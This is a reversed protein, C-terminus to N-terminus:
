RFDMGRVIGSSGATDSGAYEVTVPMPQPQEGCVFDAPAHRMQVHKLDPIALTLLKGSAEITITTITECHIARLTGEVRHLEDGAEIFPNWDSQGHPTRTAVLQLSGSADRAFRVNLDTQAIHIQDAARKRQAASSAYEAAHRAASIAEDRRDIENFSDALALWYDFARKEPINRMAQFERIAAEYHRANKELLALQYHADDFGPRLAAARELAPRIDDAPLGAQDALIAYEYCLEADSIGLEIARKWARRAGEGDGKHLAISGLAAFVEPSGPSEKALDDLAAGARDLEGAALLLQALTLRAAFPSIAGVRVPESKTVVEPLRIMPLARRNVCDHLDHTIAEASKGYIQKLAEVGPMGASVSAIFRQFQPAYGPSLMLMETAAWSEAYFLDGWDRGQRAQEEDSVALLEELPMWSRRQLTRMRGALVGGLETDQTEIRLTAFFEALGEKLWPPLRLDSDRLVLHAYEHAALAFKGPDDGSMVIYDQGKSGVYYADATSRLRYPQYEAESSFVIVKVPATVSKWGGRQQDFFARLQEFWGLITRAQQDTAHSYIQFHDNTTLRWEPSASAGLPVGMAVLVLLWCCFRVSLSIYRRILGEDDVRKTKGGM